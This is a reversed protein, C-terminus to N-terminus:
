RDYGAWNSAQADDISKHFFWVTSPPPARRKAMDSMQKELLNRLPDFPIGSELWGKAISLDKPSYRGTSPNKGDSTPAPGGFQQERIVEFAFLVDEPKDVYPEGPKSIPPSPPLSEKPSPSPADNQSPKTVPKDSPKGDTVSANAMRKGDAKSNGWRAIAGEKGAKSRSSTVGSAIAIELDIRGHRWQGDAITFFHALIPRLRRWQAPSLKSIAALQDDDDPLPGGSTWYDFILLVYAGHGETTLRGTDRLYDGIYFPM